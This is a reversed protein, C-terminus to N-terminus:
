LVMGISLKELYLIYIYYLETSSRSNFLKSAPHLPSSSLDVVTWDPFIVRYCTTQWFVRDISLRLFYFFRVSKQFPENM